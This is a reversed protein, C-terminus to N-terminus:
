SQKSVADNVKQKQKGKRKNLQFINCYRFPRDTRLAKFGSTTETTNTM